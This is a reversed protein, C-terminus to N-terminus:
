SDGKLPPSLVVPSLVVPSLVVPARWSPWFLGVFCCCLPGLDEEGGEEGGVEGGMEGRAEGGLRGVEGPKKLFFAM